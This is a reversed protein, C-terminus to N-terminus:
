WCCGCHNVNIAYVAGAPTHRLGCGSGLRQWDAVSVHCSASPVQARGVKLSTWAVKSTLGLPCTGGGWQSAADGVPPAYADAKCPILVGEIAAVALRAAAAAAAAAAGSSFSHACKLDVDAVSWAIVDASIPAFLAALGSAM